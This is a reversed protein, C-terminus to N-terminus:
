EPAIFLFRAAHAGASLDIVDGEALPTKKLPALRRSNLYTGGKSANDEIQWTDREHIIYAHPKTVRTVARYQDPLSIAGAAGPGAMGADERGIAIRDGKLSFVRGDAPGSILFLVPGTVGPSGDDCPLGSRLGSIRKRIDGYGPPVAVSGFVNITTVLTELSGEALSYKWVPAIGRETERSFGAGRRALSSSVLRDLHKKTTQYSSGITEAIESIEMPEREILKLIRLRVPNSLVELYESLEGLFEPDTSVSITPREPMSRSQVTAGQRVPATTM